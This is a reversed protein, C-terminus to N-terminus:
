LAFTFTNDFRYGASFLQDATQTALNRGVSLAFQGGVTLDPSSRKV